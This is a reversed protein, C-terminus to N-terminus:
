VHALFSRHMPNKFFKSRTLSPNSGISETADAKANLTPDEPAFFGHTALHLIYPSHVGFLAAKTAAQEVLPTSDWQWTKFKQSLAILEQKTGNLKDFHLDGLDHVEAGRPPSASAVTQGLLADFDPNAVIVVQTNSAPTVDRLLDRGSAVYQTLYKEALFHNDPTLLTGFSIFNLEADPSIIVRNTEGPLVQEIPAWLERYLQELTVSLQEEDFANRVLSKYRYVIAEVEEAKGLPIWRAQSTPTLVIAGYRQEREDKGLYHAYRLYEILAGDKPIVAQVQNVSVSLARRARGLGSVHQALQGEIQEVEQELNAIKKESEAPPKEATQLLLQGLQRKAAELRGVLDRDASDKSAEAILRDEIISDLVVGKYRLIASALDDESGKLVAFLSFPNIQREYAMREQESAFSLIKSLIAKYAKAISQGLSKAELIQGRDFKLFALNNLSTATDPHEPGLV